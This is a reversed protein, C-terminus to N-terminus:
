EWSGDTAPPTLVFPALVDRPAQASTEALRLNRMNNNDRPITLLAQLLHHHRNCIRLVRWQRPRAVTIWSERGLGLSAAQRLACCHRSDVGSAMGRGCAQPEEMCHTSSPHDLGGCRLRQKYKGTPRPPSTTRNALRPSRRQLTLHGGRDGSGRRHCRSLAHAKIHWRPLRGIQAGASVKDAPTAHAARRGVGRGLAARGVAFQPPVGNRGLVAIASSNRIRARTRMLPAQRGYGLNHVTDLSIINGITRGTRHNM